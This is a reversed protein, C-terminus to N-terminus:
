DAGKVTVTDVALAVSPRMGLLRLDALLGDCVPDLVAQQPDQDPHLYLEYLWDWERAFRWSVHALRTLDVRQVGKVRALAAAQSHLWAESEQETLHYPRQVLVIVRTVRFHDLV